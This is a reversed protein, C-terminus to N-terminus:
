SLSCNLSGIKKWTGNINKFLYICSNGITQGRIQSMKFVIIRENEYFLLDSIKILIVNKRKGKVEGTRKDIVTYFFSSGEDNDINKAFNNKYNNWDKVYIIQPRTQQIKHITNGDIYSSDIQSNSYDIKLNDFGVNKIPQNILYYQATTKQKYINQLGSLLSDIMKADQSYVSSNGFLLIMLVIYAKKM